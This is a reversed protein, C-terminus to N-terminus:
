AHQDAASSRKMLAEDRLAPQLPVAPPALVLIRHRLSMCTILIYKFDTALPLCDWYCTSCRLTRAPLDPHSNLPHRGTRVPVMLLPLTFCIPLYGTLGLSRSAWFIFNGVNALKPRSGM